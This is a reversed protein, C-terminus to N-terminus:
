EIAPVPRIELQVAGHLVSGSHAMVERSIAVATACAWHENVSSSCILDDGSFASRSPGRGAWRRKLSQWLAEKLLSPRVPGGEPRKRPGAKPRWGTQPHHRDKRLM